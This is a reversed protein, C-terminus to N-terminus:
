TSYNCSPCQYRAKGKQTVWIVIGVIIIIPGLVWGLLPILCILIGITVLIWGARPQRFVVIMQHACSPCMRQAYNQYQMAAAAGMAAQSATAV